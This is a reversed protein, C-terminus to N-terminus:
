ANPGTRKQETAAIEQLREQIPLHQTCQDECAGCLTCVKADEPTLRWHWKLRDTIRSSDGGGLIKENYADMMQPILVGSPCPMCYGCGTCLGDLSQLIKGRVSEIHTAPYPVFNEVAACAEDVQSKSSFGVLALTIGPQSINFRLAAEVVSRDRPGRLFEFRHSERPIIGGGLPNMTAIGRGLEAAADVAAQRYPFNIACYGLTVGEIPERRLLDRIHDGQLHSSVVVHDVLGEEKAKFAAAVAGGKVREEWEGPRVLCWIHFFHIKSLGLRILSRELSERLMRGDAESCKTSVFFTGPKFHKIAAGLSEESRDDCYYPATDFYNIGKNYAHLLLDANADIDQPSPFRMGGFGIVSVNKGTKGYTKHLMHPGTRQEHM